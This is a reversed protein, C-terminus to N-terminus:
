RGVRVSYLHKLTDGGHTADIRRVLVLILWVSLDTCVRPAVVVLLLVVGVM